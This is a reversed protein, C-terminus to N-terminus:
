QAAIPGSEESPPEPDPAERTMPAPKQCRQNMFSGLETALQTMASQIRELGEHPEGTHNDMYQERVIEIQVSHREQSPDGHRKVLEVGKLVRNDAVGFGLDTLIGIVKDKVDDAASRGESTGIFFTYDGLVDKEKMFEMPFSHCTVHCSQGFAAINQDILAALQAHYPMWYADIRRLIEDETPPTDTVPIDRGFYARTRVLGLGAKAYFDGEAPTIRSLEGTVHDPHVSNTARNFDIYSRAVRTGLFPFGAGLTDSFIKDVHLDAQRHVHSEDCALHFDEPFFTSHHPSEFIVPASLREPVHCVYAPHTTTHFERNLSM